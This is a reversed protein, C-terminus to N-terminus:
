FEVNFKVKISNAVIYITSKCAPFEYLPLSAVQQSALRLENTPKSSNSVSAVRQSTVNWKNAPLKTISGALINVRYPNPKEFFTNKQRSWKPGKM